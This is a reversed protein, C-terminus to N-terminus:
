KKRELIGLLIQDHIKQIPAKVKDLAPQDAV